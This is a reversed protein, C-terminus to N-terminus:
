NNIALEPSTNTIRDSGGAGVADCHGKHYRQGTIAEVVKRENDAKIRDGSLLKNFGKVNKGPVKAKKILNKTEPQVKLKDARTKGQRNKAKKQKEVEVFQVAVGGGNKIKWDVINGEKNKWRGIGLKKNNIDAVSVGDARLDKAIKLAKSKDQIKNYLIEAM